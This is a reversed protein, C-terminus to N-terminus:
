CMHKLIRTNKIILSITNVLVYCGCHYAEIRISDNGNCVNLLLIMMDVNLTVLEEEELATSPVKGFLWQGAGECAQSLLRLVREARM